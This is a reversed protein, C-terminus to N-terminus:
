NRVTIHVGADYAQLAGDQAPFYVVGDVVAPAGIVESGTDASWLPTCM